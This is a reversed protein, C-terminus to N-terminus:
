KIVLEIRGCLLVDVTYLDYIPLASPLAASTTMPQATPYRIRYERPEGGRTAPHARAPEPGCDRGRRDELNGGRRRM